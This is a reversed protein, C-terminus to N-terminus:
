RGPSVIGFRHFFSARTETTLIPAAALCNRNMPPQWNRPPTLLFAPSESASLDNAQGVIDGRDNIDNASTLSLSSGPALFCQLNVSKGNRWIFAHSAFTTNNFSQGVVEGLDNVGNALANTDGSLPLIKTLKGGRMLVFGVPQFQGNTDGPLNMFGAIDGHDDISEPTNWSIGGFNGINTVRGHKWVVAHAASFRGAAQDCIGSIGVIEGGANVATASGDPDGPLTPLRHINAHTDWVAPEFQLVQYYSNPIKTVATCTRDHVPTEAWGVIEPADSTGAAYGNVGGFTPLPTMAYGKWMVGLCVHKTDPPIFFSQCSWDEGLPNVASTESIGAVIGLSNHNPWAVASNAGGLTGLPTTKGYQRVFAEADVNGGLNSTGASTGVENISAASSASGGLTGLNTVTYYRQATSASAVTQALATSQMAGPVIGSPAGTNSACGAAFAVAVISGISKFYM